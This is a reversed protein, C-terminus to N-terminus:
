FFTANVPDVQAGSTWTLTDARVATPAAWVLLMAVTLCAGRRRRAATLFPHLVNMLAGKSSAAQIVSSWAPLLGSGRIARWLGSVYRHGEHDRGPGGSPIHLADGVVSCRGAAASLAQPYGARPRVGVSRPRELSVRPHRGRTHSPATRGLLRGIRWK